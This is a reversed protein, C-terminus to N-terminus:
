GDMESVDGGSSGYYVNWLCLVCMGYYRLYAVGVWEYIFECESMGCSFWEAGGRVDSVRVGGFTFSM